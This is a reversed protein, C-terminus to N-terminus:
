NKMAECAYPLPLIPPTEPVEVNSTFGDETEEEPTEGDEEKVISDNTRATNPKSGQVSEENAVEEEKDAVEEEKGADEGDGDVEDEDEDIKEDKEEKGEEDDVVNESTPEESVKKENNTEETEEGEEGDETKKPLMDDDEQGPRYIDKFCKRIIHGLSGIGVFDATEDEPVKYLPDDEKIQLFDLSYDHGADGETFLKEEDAKIEEPTKEVIQIEDEAIPIEGEVVNEDAMTVVIRKNQTQIPLERTGRKM